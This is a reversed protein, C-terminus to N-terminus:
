TGRRRRTLDAVVALTPKVVHTFEYEDSFCTCANASMEERRADVTELAASLEGLDGILVGCDYSTIVEYGPYDFAIVPVGARLFMALKESSRATLRDNEPWAGYLVLGVRASAVIQPLDGYPVMTLSLLTRHRTDARRVAEICPPEGYGHMVLVWGEPFGQAAAALEVSLRHEWILGLQLAIPTETSLGLSRHLRSSPQAQPPGPLSVPLYAIRTQAAGNDALLVHGRAEDQVITADALRHFREEARKLRRHRYSWEIFPYGRTYLELSYYVLANNTKGAVQGAWVLGAKEVGILVCDGAAAVLETSERLAGTSVFGRSSRVMLLVAERVRRARRLAGALLRHALALAWGAASGGSRREGTTPQRSRAERPAWSRVTIGDPIDGYLGMSSTDVDHLCLTVDYGSARLAEALNV